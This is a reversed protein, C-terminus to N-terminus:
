NEKTLALFRELSPCNLEIWKEVVARSWRRCNGLKVSPPLQGASLMSFVKSRSIGLLGALETASLLFKEATEIAM